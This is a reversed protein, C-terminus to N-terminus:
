SNGKLQNLKKRLLRAEDPEDMKEACVAAKRLAESEFGINPYRALLTIYRLYASNWREQKFYFNAIYLYKEGLMKILQARKERAEAIYKSKPYTNQLEELITIAEQATSLDRDTTSPIQNFVSLALKYIVYETSKHRPHLERFAQYAVQAEIYSEREFQIDALTLEADTSLPDYPFKNKLTRFEFVAEEFREQEKLWQAYAFKGSATNRDVKPASTCATLLFVVSLVLVNRNRM